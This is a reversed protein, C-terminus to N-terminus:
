LDFLLLLNNGYNYMSTKFFDRNAQKSGHAQVSVAKNIKRQLFLDDLKFLIELFCSVKRGRQTGRESKHFGGTLDGSHKSYLYMCVSRIKRLQTLILRVLHLDCQRKQEECPSCLIARTLPAEDNQSLSVALVTQSENKM